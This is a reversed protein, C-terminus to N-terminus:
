WVKWWPKKPAVSPQPNYDAVIGPLERDMRRYQTVMENLDGTNVIRGLQPDYAIYGAAVELIGFCGTACEMMEQAHQRFYPMTIAVTGEYVEFQVQLDDDNLEIWPLRSQPQFEELSPRWLKLMDALRRMEARAPEAVPRKLWSDLNATEREEQAMLEQYAREANIGDPIHFLTLDYSL